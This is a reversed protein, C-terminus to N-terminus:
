VGHAFIQDAVIKRHYDADGFAADAARARRFYLPLDHEEMYGMGGFVQHGLAIVRRYGQNCWAKAISAQKENPMGEHIMWAAKYTVWRCGELDVLMNVCHHQIAQFAGIPQGFQERDKAYATALDLVVQGGGVMEACKLVAARQLVSAIAPWARGPQGLVNEKAVKVDDFVVEFQKDGAITKLPKTRISPDKGDLIFITVGDESATGATTRAVCLIFDAVHADAVFLKTGNIIYRDGEDRASVTM